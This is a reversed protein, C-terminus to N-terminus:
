IKDGLYTYIVYGTKKDATTVRACPDAEDGPTVTVIEGATLYPVTDGPTPKEIDLRSLSKLAAERTGYLWGPTHVRVKYAPATQVFAPSETTNVAQGCGTMLSGAVIPWIFGQFRSNVMSQGLQPSIGATYAQRPEQGGPTYLCQIFASNYREM